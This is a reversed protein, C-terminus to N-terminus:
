SLETGHDVRVQQWLTYHLLLPKMPVNYIAISNKVPITKCSFGDIAMVHTLDYMALKENQDFHLKDGFFRATYPPPNLHRCARQRRGLQVAIPVLVIPLIVYYPIAISVLAVLIQEM